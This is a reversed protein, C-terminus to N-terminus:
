LISQKAASKLSQSIDHYYKTIKYRLFSKFFSYLTVKNIVQTYCADGECRNCKILGDKKM